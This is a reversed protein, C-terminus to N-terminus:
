CHMLQMLNLGRKLLFLLQRNELHFQIQKMIGPHNQHELLQPAQLQSEKIIKSNLILKKQQNMLYLFTKKMYNPHIMLQTMLCPNLHAQDQLQILRVLLFNMQSRKMYIMILIYLHQQHLQLNKLYMMQLYVKIDFMILNM